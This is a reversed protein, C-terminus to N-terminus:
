LKTKLGILDNARPLRQALTTLLSNFDTKCYLLQHVPKFNSDDSHCPGESIILWYQNLNTGEPGWQLDIDDYQTM